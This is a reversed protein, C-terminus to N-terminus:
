MPLGIGYRYAFDFYASAMDSKKGNKEFFMELATESICKPSSPSVKWLKSLVAEIVKQKETPISIMTIIGDRLVTNDIVGKNSELDFFLNVVQMEKSADIYGHFKLLTVIQETDAFKPPIPYFLSEMVSIDGMLLSKYRVLIDLSITSSLLKEKVKAHYEEGWQKTKDLAIAVSVISLLTPNDTDIFTSDSLTISQLFDKYKGQFLLQGSATAENSSAKQADAPIIILISLILYIFFHISYKNM